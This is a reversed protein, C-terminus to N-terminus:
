NIRRLGLLRRANLVSIVIALGTWVFGFFGLNPIAWLVGIAVMALNVVLGLAGFGAMLGSPGGLGVRRGAPVAPLPETAQPLGAIARALPTKTSIYLILPSAAGLGAHDIRLRQRFLGSIPVVRGIEASLIAYRAMLFPKILLGAPFVTVSLLPGSFRVEGIQGGCRGSAIAAGSERVLRVRTSASGSDTQGGILNPFVFRFLVYAMAVMALPHTVLLSATHARSWEWVAGSVESYGGHAGLFYHGDQQYGNMADGGLAMSEAVVWFFNVVGITVAALALYPLAAKVRHVASTGGTV